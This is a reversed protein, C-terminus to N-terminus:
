LTTLREQRAGIQAGGLASAAINLTAAMLLENSMARFGRVKKVLCIKGGPIVADDFQVRDSTPQSAVM